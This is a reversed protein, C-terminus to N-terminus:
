EVGAPHLAQILEEPGAPKVLFEDFGAEHARRRDDSQGFGTLAVVRLRPSHPQSRLQRCVEYGDMGPLGIDLFVVDPRWREVEELAALGDGV